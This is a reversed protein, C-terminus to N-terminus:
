RADGPWVYKGGGAQLWGGTGNSKPGAALRVKAPASRPKPKATALNQDAVARGRTAKSTPPAPEIEVDTVVPVPPEVARPELTAIEEIKGSRVEALQQAAKVKEAEAAAIAAAREAEQQALRLKAEAEVLAYREHRATESGSWPMPRCTCGDILKRRYLFATQSSGYSRGDLDVMEEADTGPNPRFYLKTGTGCTAECADAHRPFDKRSAPYNVPWYYGDCTRVCMTQYSGGADRKTTENGDRRARAPREEESSPAAPSHGLRQPAPVFAPKKTQGLGFLSEFFSQAQAGSSVQGVLLLSVIGVWLLVRYSRRV